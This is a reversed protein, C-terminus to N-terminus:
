TNKRSVLCIYSRSPRHSSASRMGTVESVSFQLEGDQGDAPAAIAADRMEAVVIEVPDGPVDTGTEHLDLAARLSGQEVAELACARGAGV